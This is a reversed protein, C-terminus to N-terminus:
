GSSEPNEFSQKAATSADTPTGWRGARKIADEAKHWLEEGTVEVTSVYAGINPVDTVYDFNTFLKAAADEHSEADVIEEMYGCIAKYKPM